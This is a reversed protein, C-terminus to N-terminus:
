TMPVYKLWIHCWCVPWQKVHSNIILLKDKSLISNMQYICFQLLSKFIFHLRQHLLGM